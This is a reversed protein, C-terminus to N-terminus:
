GRQEMRMVLTEDSSRALGGSHLEDTSLYKHTRWKYRERIMTVVAEWTGYLLRYIIRAMKMGIAVLVAIFAVEQNIM